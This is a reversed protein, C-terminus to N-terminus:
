TEMRSHVWFLKQLKAAREMCLLSWGGTCSIQADLATKLLFPLWLHGLGWQTSCILLTNVGTRTDSMKMSPSPTASERGRYNSCRRETPTKTRHPQQTKLYQCRNLTSVCILEDKHVQSTPLSPSLFVEQAAKCTSASYLQLAINHSSIVTLSVPDPLWPEKVKNGARGLVNCCHSLYSLRESLARSLVQRASLCIAHQLLAHLM